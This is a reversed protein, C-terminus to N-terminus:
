VILLRCLQAASVYISLSCKARWWFVEGDSGGGPGVELGM